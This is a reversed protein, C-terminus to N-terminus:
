VTKVEKDIHGLAMLCICEPCLLNALNIANIQTYSTKEGNNTLTFVRLGAKLSKFCEM